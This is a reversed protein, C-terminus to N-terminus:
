PRQIRTMGTLCNIRVQLWNTHQRTYVPSTSAAPLFGETLLLYVSSVSPPFTTAGAPGFEIWAYDLTVDASQFGTVVNTFGPDARRLCSVDLFCASSDRVFHYPPSADTKPNSAPEFLVGDPLTEWKSIQIYAPTPLSRDLKWLSMRRYHAPFDEKGSRDAWHSTVVRLQVRTGQTIAESRAVAVLNSVWQGASDLRSATALSNVAPIAFISLLTILGIVGLLEVLTFAGASM